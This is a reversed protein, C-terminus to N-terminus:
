VQSPFLWSSLILSTSSSIPLGSSARIFLLLFLKLEGLRIDPPPPPTGGGGMACTPVTTFEFEFAFPFLLPFVLM